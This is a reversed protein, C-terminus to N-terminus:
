HETPRFGGLGANLNPRTTAYSPNNNNAKPRAFYRRYNPLLPGEKVVSNGAVIPFTRPVASPM